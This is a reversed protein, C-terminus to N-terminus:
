SKIMILLMKFKRIAKLSHPKGAPLIIIEGKKVIHPRGAIRIEASGDAIYVLADFPVTHGSLCQRKDFAFLSVTGTNKRIIEKSVVSGNQYELLFEPKFAKGAIKKLM